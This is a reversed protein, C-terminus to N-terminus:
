ADVEIRHASGVRTTLRIPTGCRALSAEVAFHLALSAGGDVQRVRVQTLRPEYALIVDRLTACIQHRSDPYNKLLPILDGLGYAPCGPANGQRANLLVRLNDVIAAITDSPPDEGRALRRLFVSHTAGDHM